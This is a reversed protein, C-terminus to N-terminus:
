HGPARGCAAPICVHRTRLRLRLDFQTRETFGGCTRYTSGRSADNMWLKEAPFVGLPPNYAVRLCHLTAHAPDSAAAVQVEIRTGRGKNTTIPHYLNSPWPRCRSSFCTLRYVQTSVWIFSRTCTPSHPFLPQCAPIGCTPIFISSRPGPGYYHTVPRTLRM